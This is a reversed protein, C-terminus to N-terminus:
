EAGQEKEAKQLAINLEELEAKARQLSGAADKVKKYALALYEFGAVVEETEKEKAEETFERVLTCFGESMIDHELQQEKVWWVQTKIKDRLDKTNLTNNM